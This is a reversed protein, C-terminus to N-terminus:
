AGLITIINQDHDNLMLYEDTISYKLFLKLSVWEFILRGKMAMISFLPTWIPLYVVTYVSGASLTMKLLMM